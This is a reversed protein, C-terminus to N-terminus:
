FLMQHPVATLHSFQAVPYLKGGSSPLLTFGMQHNNIQAMNQNPVYGPETLRQSLLKNISPATYESMQNM